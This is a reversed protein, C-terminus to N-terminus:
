KFKEILKNLVEDLPYLYGMMLYGISVGDITSGLLMTTIQPNSDGKSKFYDEFLKMYEELFPAFIKQFLSQSQPQTLLSFYVKWYTTNSKIIEFNSRIALEFDSETELVKHNSSLLDNFQMFGEGLVGELLVEKSEFYNYLNGKSVGAEKSISQMSTGLYGNQSFLKLATSLILEKKQERIELNQLDTRPSM